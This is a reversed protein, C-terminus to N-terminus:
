TRAVAWVHSIAYSSIGSYLGWWSSWSLIPHTVQHWNNSSNFQHGIMQDFWWLAKSSRAPYYFGDVPVGDEFFTETVQCPHFPILIITGIIAVLSYERITHSLSWKVARTNRCHYNWYEHHRWWISVDEANSVMQAHFEGTGPSNGACLGTVRLKPTKKSRRRFLRNLLCDHHQHNSVSDHGNHRSQLTYSKSCSLCQIFLWIGHVSFHPTYNWMWAM